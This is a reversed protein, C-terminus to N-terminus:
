ACDPRILTMHLRAFGPDAPRGTEAAFREIWDPRHETQALDANRILQEDRRETPHHPWCTAQILRAVEGLWSQTHSHGFWASHRAEEPQGHLRWVTLAQDINVQDGCDPDGTHMLDHYWGALLMQAPDCHHTLAETYGRIGTELCHVANHYPLHHSAYRNVMGVHRPSVGAVDALQIAQRWVQDENM